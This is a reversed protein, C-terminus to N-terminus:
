RVDFPTFGTSATTRGGSLGDVRFLFSGGEKVVPLSALAVRAEPESLEESTYLTELKPTLITLRYRQVGDMATWHFSLERGETQVGAGDIKAPPPGPPPTPVSTAAMAQTPTAPPQSESWHASSGAHWARWLAVVFVLAAVIVIGATVRSRLWRSSPLLQRWHTGAALATSRQDGFQAELFHALEVSVQDVRARTCLDRDEPLKLFRQYDDLLARCRVHADLHRDVDNSAGPSLVRWPEPCEPSTAAPERLSLYIWVSLPCGDPIQNLTRAAQLLAVRTRDVSPGGGRGGAFCYLYVRRVQEELLERLIPRRRGDSEWGAAALIRDHEAASDPSKTRDDPSM